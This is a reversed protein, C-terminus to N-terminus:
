EQGALLFVRIVGLRADENVMERWCGKCLPDLPHHELEILVGELDAPEGCSTCDKGTTREFRLWDGSMTIIVGEPPTSRRIPNM